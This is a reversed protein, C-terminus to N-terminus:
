FRRDLTCTYNRHTRRDIPLSATVAKATRTVGKKTIPRASVWGHVGIRETQRKATNAKADHRQATECLRCMRSMGVSMPVAAVTCLTSDSVAMAVRVMAVRLTMAVSM